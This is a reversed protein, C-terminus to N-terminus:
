TIPNSRAETGGDPFLDHHDQKGRTLVQPRNSRPTAHSSHYCRKVSRPTANACHKMHNSRGKNRRKTKKEEMKFKSNTEFPKKRKRNERMVAKKDQLIVKRKNKETGGHKEGKCGAHEKQWDNRKNM